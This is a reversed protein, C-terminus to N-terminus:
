VLFAWASSGSRLFLENNSAGGDIASPSENVSFADLGDRGPVCRCEVGGFLM